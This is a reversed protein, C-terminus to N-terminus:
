DETEPKDEYAAAAVAALSLALIICATAVAKRLRQKMSVLYGVDAAAGGGLCQTSM